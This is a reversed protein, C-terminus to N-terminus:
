AATLAAVDASGIHTLAVDHGAGALAVLGLFSGILRDIMGHAM